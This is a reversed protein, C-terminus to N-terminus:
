AVKVLRPEGAYGTGCEGRIIRRGRLGNETRGRWGGGRRARRRRCWPAPVLGGGGAGGAARGKGSVGRRASTGVVEWGRWRINFGALTGTSWSWSLGEVGGLRKLREEAGPDEGM